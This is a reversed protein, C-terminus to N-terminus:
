ERRINIEMEKKDHILKKHQQQAKKYMERQMIKENRLDVIRKQLYELSQNTFVLAQSLDSSIEGNVFYEVQWFCFNGM